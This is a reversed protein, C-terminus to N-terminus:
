FDRHQALFARLDSDAIRVVGHLRHAVLQREKIWRRVTRTSVNLCEAVEAITFFQIAKHGRAHVGPFSSSSEDSKALPPDRKPILPRNDAKSSRLVSM